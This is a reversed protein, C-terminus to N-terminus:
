ADCPRSTLRGLRTGRLIRSGPLRVFRVGDRRERSAVIRALLVEQALGVLACGGTVRLGADWGALLGFALTLALAILAVHWLPTPEGAGGDRLEGARDMARRVGLPGMVALLALVIALQILTSAANERSAPVAILLVLSGAVGLAALFGGEIRLRERYSPAAVFRDELWEVVTTVM